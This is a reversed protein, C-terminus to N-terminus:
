APKTEDSAADAENSRHRITHGLDHIANVMPICSRILTCAATPIKTAVGFLVDIGCIIALATTM